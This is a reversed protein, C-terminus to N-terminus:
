NAKLECKVGYKAAASKCTLTEFPQTNGELPIVAVQSEPKQGCRYEVLYRKLTNERGVFRMDKDSSCTINHQALADKFTQMTVVSGNDSLKCPLGNMASEHCPVIRIPQLSGPLAVTLIYGAGGTCAVEDFELHAAANQGIYKHDRATCPTGARAMINTAMTNVDASTPLACVVGPKRGAAVDAARTADAAFCTFGYPNGPEQSILFYGLGSACAAEYTKTDVQKGDVTEPGQAVLMAQDVQCNLPMKTVLAAAAAKDEALLQDLTKGKDKDDKTLRKSREAYDQLRNFQEQSMNDRGLPSGYPTASAPPAGGVQASAPVIALTASFVAAALLVWRTTM